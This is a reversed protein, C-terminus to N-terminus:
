ISRDDHLIVVRVNLFLLGFSYVDSACTPIAQQFGLIDERIKEPACWAPNDHVDTTLGKVDDMLYSCGFDCLLPKNDKMLINNQTVLHTSEMFM